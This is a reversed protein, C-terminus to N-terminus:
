AQAAVAADSRLQVRPVRALRGTERPTVIARRPRRRFVEVKGADSMREVM